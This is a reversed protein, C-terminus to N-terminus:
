KLHSSLKEALSLDKYHVVIRGITDYTITRTPNPGAILHALNSKYGLTRGFESITIGQQKLWARLIANSKSTPLQNNMTEGTNHTNDIPNNTNDTSLLIAILM